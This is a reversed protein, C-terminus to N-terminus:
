GIGYTVLDSFRSPLQRLGYMPRVVLPLVLQRRDKEMADALRSAVDDPHLSGLKGVRRAVGALVPDRRNEEVLQTRVEGLIALTVHVPTSSLERQLNVFLQNLGAKSAAYCGVNRLAMEAAVSSVAVVTGRGRDLMRPIAQRCLEIPACLNALVQDRAVGAPQSVFPGAVSLAANNVLADIPGAQAEIREIISDLEDASCLDVPVALGGLEDALEKLRGASRALVTVRAGRGAVERALSEGIGRSAGTIVIHSDALRM